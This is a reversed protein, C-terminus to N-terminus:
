ELEKLAQAVEDKTPAVGHFKPNNEMFSVGKGKITHAVIVTPKGKVTAAEGFAAQLAPIDHGNLEIVHWGFARWKPVLPELEMIDKIFGDLQLKNYDVIAVLNDVKHYAGFMAAEWIQGEQIEGDGLVVYVRTPRDDLRGTLAMGLGISLGQGLSGTSAELVRLFRKDPHGQYISGLKRLTNLQDKPTYGAEALVAYLAPCGHGKSLIFRDRDEWHPNSPDHRMVGGFFLTILIEVQSLSGGPHGSKAEGIMQVIERRVRKAIAQLEELSHKPMM